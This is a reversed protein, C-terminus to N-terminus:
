PNNWKLVFQLSLYHYYAKWMQKVLQFTVLLWDGCQAVFVTM